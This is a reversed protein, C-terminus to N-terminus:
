VHIKQEGHQGMTTSIYLRDLELSRDVGAVNGWLSVESYHDNWDEEVTNRDLRAVYFRDMGVSAETKSASCM